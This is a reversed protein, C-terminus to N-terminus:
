ISSRGSREKLYKQAEMVWAEGRKEIVGLQPNCASCLLGRVQGTNHDHDVVLRESPLKCIMCKGGAEEQLREVEEPTLNYLAM